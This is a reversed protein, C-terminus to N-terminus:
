LSHRVQNLLLWAIIGLKENLKYPINWEEVLVKAEAAFCKMTSSPCKQQLSLPLPAFTFGHLCCCCGSCCPCAM